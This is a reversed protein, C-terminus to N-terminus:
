ITKNLVNNRYSKPSIGVYQKFYKGFFSQTPFNLRVAIEKISLDSDELLQKAEIIVMQVIWQLAGTGSKEKIITSFYRPDMHQKQAYFTVDRERRYYRFLALLFNLFIVDKKGQPLPKLPQNTFYTDLVEYLVTQGMSKILELRLHKQQQLLGSIDETEIRHYLNLLMDKLRVYQEASLSICPHREIFLLNEVNVVKSVISIVYNIDAEVMIGEADDSKHLLRILSSTMYIYMDGRKIQYTKDEFSIEIEGQSCIFFGCHDLTSILQGIHFMDSNEVSIPTVYFPIKQDIM